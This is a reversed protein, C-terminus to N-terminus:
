SNSKVIKALAVSKAQIRYFASVPCMVLALESIPHNLHFDSVKSSFKFQLTDSFLHVTSISEGELALRHIIILSNNIRAQPFLYVLLPNRVDRHLCTQLKSVNFPVQEDFALVFICFMASCKASYLQMAGPQHRRADKGEDDVFLIKTFQCFNIKVAAPCVGATQNLPDRPRTFSSAINLLSADTKRGPPCRM